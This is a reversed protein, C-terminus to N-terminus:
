ASSTDRLRSRAPEVLLALFDQPSYIQGAQLPAPAPDLPIILDAKKKDDKLWLAMVYLAPIRLLRLEYLGQQVQPLAEAAVIAAETAAVYPGENIQAFQPSAGTRKVSAEASAIAREGEQIIYRWGTLKAARLGRAQALDNLELNYIRHPAALSLDQHAALVLAPTRFQGQQAVRQLTSAIVNTVTPTPTEIRLPM